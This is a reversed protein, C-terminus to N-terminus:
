VYGGDKCLIVRIKNIQEYAFALAINAMIEGRDEYDDLYDAQAGSEAYAILDSLACQEDPTFRPMPKFSSVFEKAEKMDERALFHVIDGEKIEGFSDDIMGAKARGGRKTHECNGNTQGCIGCYGERCEDYHGM